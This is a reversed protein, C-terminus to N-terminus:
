NSEEFSLKGVVGKTCHEHVCHWGVVHRVLVTNRHTFYTTTTVLKLVTTTTGYVVVVAGGGSIRGGGKNSSQINQNREKSFIKYTQQM